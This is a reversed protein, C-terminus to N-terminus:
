ASEAESPLIKLSNSINKRRSKISENAIGSKQTNMAMSLQPENEPEPDRTYDILTIPSIEEPADPALKNLANCLNNLSSGDIRPMTDSNRLNSISNASLGMEQALDIAKIKYRAMVERLCWRILTQNM